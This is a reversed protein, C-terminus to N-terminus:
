DGTKPIAAAVADGTEKSVPLSYFLTNSDDRTVSCRLSRKGNKAVDVGIIYGDDILQKTSTVRGDLRWYRNMDKAPLASTNVGTARPRPPPKPVPRHEYQDIRAAPIFFPPDYAGFHKNEGRNRYEDRLPVVFIMEDSKDLEGASIKSMHVITALRDDSMSASTTVWDGAAEREARWVAKDRVFSEGFGVEIGTAAEYQDPFWERVREEASSRAEEDKGFYMVPINAELDEEYWRDSNRLAAPIKRNREPSLKYGGHGATSARVIGQDIEEVWQIEGWPSRGGIRVEDVSGWNPQDSLSTTSPEARRDHAFQGGAPVGASVRSRNQQGAMGM